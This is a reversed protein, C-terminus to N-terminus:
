ENNKKENIIEKIRAAEEYNEEDILRALQKELEEVTLRAPDIPQPVAPTAPTNAATDDDSDTDSDTAEELVIGTEEVIEPTTYIAAKTRMAVAIADSTRADITITREGDTFMMESSYVGDEFRYIFVELLQVGFARTLTTFLEHTMPRPTKVGDLCLAISQAEAAGIVVPIRVPSDGDVALLLAFAGNQMPSYSIGMVRLKVRNDMQAM